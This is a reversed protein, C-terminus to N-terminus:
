ALRAQRGALLFTLPMDGVPRASFNKRNTSASLTPNQNTAAM